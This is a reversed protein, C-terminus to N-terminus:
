RHGGVLVEYTEHPFNCVNEALANRVIEVLVVKGTHTWLFRTPKTRFTACTRQWLTRVNNDPHTRPIKERVDM